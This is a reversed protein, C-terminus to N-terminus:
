RCAGSVLLAGLAVLALAVLLRFSREDLRLHLRNGIFAGVAVAPLMAVTSWLREETILGLAGYTPVRVLTMLLFIAMLNGRFAARDVGALRFHLVLPPGGTGFLGTLVGSALGIPAVAWRPWGRRRAGDPAVLFVVGFGVLLSGLLVLLLSPDGRGLWWAGIPIGVGIGVMLVAVGRWAIERWSTAVVFLEAPLNVLLLVVVADRTDPLLLALAGVAVLGAGFGLLVYIAEALVLVLAAALLQGPSDFVTDIWPVPATYGHRGAACAGPSSVGGPPIM